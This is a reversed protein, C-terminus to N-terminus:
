SQNGNMGTLSYGLARMGPAAERALIWREYSHLRTRIASHGVSVSLAEDEKLKVGLWSEFKRFDFNGSVLDEYKVRLAPFDEPLESWSMAIRNWEGAFSAASNVRLHPHRVFHDPWGTDAFSLYCDYPHRTLLVFKAHPYLWHLLAADAADSRIEKFGWRAFGHRRAPQGLWTDFLSRLALRFDEAPPHLLAIWSEALKPSAPGPQQEQWHHLFEPSLSDSLMEAIRSVVTMQGLPEGWLLLRPDTVLIRQLLTSGTRMGTSLLFIPAESDNEAPIAAPVCASLAAISATLQSVTLFKPPEHTWWAWFERARRQAARTARGLWNAPRAAAPQIASQSM